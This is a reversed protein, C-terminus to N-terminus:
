MKFEVGAGVSLGGYNSFVPTLSLWYEFGGEVFLLMDRSLLYEATVYAQAGLHFLYTNSTDASSGSIIETVYIYSAGVGGSLGLTLRGLFLNQEWGFVIDIPVVFATGIMRIGNVPIQIVAYPRGDFFGQTMVAKMGVIISGADMQEGELYPVTLAQGMMYHLFFGSNSGFRAIEELAMNEDVQVDSYVVYGTSVEKGVQKIVVLGVESADSFGDVMGGDVISYEDGVNIGMNQGLQLKIESGAVQLVKTTIKFASIKKIEYTLQAPIADIANAISTLQSTKDSGSTDVEAIGYVSGDMPNIFTVSVRIRTEYYGSKENYVSDFSTVVPIAIIFANIIKNFDAETFVAEYTRYKEPLEFNETKNKRIIDIFANVDAASFRQTMAIVRFRGMDAFVKQIKADIGGLAEYPIAFGYYGLAFIAIDQKESVVPQAAQAVLASALAFALSAVLIRKM